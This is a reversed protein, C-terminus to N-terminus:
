KGEESEETPKGEGKSFWHHRHHSGKEGDMDCQKEKWGKKLKKLEDQQAPTLIGKLKFYAETLGKEMFKKTEYKQDILKEIAELNAKDGHLQAHIDLELAKIDAKQHIVSKATELKLTSIEQVQADTLGLKDKSKLLFFAKHFFVKELGYEKGAFGDKKGACEHKKGMGWWGEHAYATVGAISAFLVLASLFWGMRKTM